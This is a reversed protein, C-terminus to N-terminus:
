GANRIAKDGDALVAADILRVGILRAEDPGLAVDDLLVKGASTDVVISAPGGLIDAALRDPETRRWRTYNRLAAGM